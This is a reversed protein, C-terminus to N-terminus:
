VLEHIKIAKRRTIKEYPIVRTHTHTHLYMPYRICMYLYLVHWIGNEFSLLECTHIHSIMAEFMVNLCLSLYFCEGGSGGGRWIRTYINWKKWRLKGSEVNAYLHTFVLMLCTQVRLLQIYLIQKIYLNVMIYTNRMCPICVCCVCMTIQIYAFIYMQAIYSHMNM